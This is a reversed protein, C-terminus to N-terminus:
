PLLSRLYDEHRVTISAKPAAWNRAAVHTQLAVAARLVLVAKATLM